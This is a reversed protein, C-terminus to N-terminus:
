VKAASCVPFTGTVVLYPAELISSTEGRIVGIARIFRLSGMHVARDTRRNDSKKLAVLNDTTWDRRECVQSREGAQSPTLGVEVLSYLVVLCPESRM